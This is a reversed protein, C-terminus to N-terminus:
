PRDTGQPADAPLGSEVLLALWLEMRGYSSDPDRGTLEAIRDIRARLTHRHIGLAAATENGHGNNGLFTQLTTRLVELKPTAAAIALPGLVSAVYASTAEQQDSRLLLQMAALDDFRTISRQEIRGIEAARVASRFSRDVSEISCAGGVGVTGGAVGIRSLVDDLEEGDAPGLVVIRAEDGHELYTAAVPSQADAIATLMQEYVRRGDAVPRVHVIMRLALPDLGWSRVQRAADAPPRSSRLIQMLVDSRLRQLRSSVERTRESELTLLAVAGSLVLREYAGIAHPVGVVLFGRPLGDISLAQIVTSESPSIIAAASRAAGHRARVLDPLLSPLHEAAATVPWSTVAEGNGDTLVAWGRLQRATEHILTESSGALAARTLTQQAEFARTVAEYREAALMNSVAESISIYPADVPVRLVPLGREDAREVLASPVEDHEMGIGFGIGALGADALRDVYAAADAAALQLGTTLLLEGGRLWPTPDAVESVHVWRVEREDGSRGAVLELGLDPLAAIRRITVPV